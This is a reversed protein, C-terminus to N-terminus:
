GFQSKQNSFIGDPLGPSFQLVLDQVYIERNLHQAATEVYDRSDFMKMLGFNNGASQSLCNPM